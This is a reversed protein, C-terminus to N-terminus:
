KIFDQSNPLFTKYTCVYTFSNQQYVFITRKLTRLKQSNQMQQSVNSSQLKAMTKNRSKNSSKCKINLVFFTSICRCAVLMTTSSKHECSHKQGAIHINLHCPCHKHPTCKSFFDHHSKSWLWSM